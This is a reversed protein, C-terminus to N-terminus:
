ASSEPDHPDCDAAVDGPDGTLPHRPETDDAAGSRLPLEAQQALALRALREKLLTLADEGVPAAAAPEAAVARPDARRLLEFLLKTAALDAGASREVLSRVMLERKTWRRRKGGPALTPADLARQLLVALNTSGRPRGHPNAKNGKQFRTALPPKGYGVRYDEPGDDPL